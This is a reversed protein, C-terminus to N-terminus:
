NLTPAILTKNIISEITGRATLKSGEKIEIALGVSLKKEFLNPSLLTIEAKITEGPSVKDRDTFVQEGSSQYSYDHIGFQPRYGSKAPTKRGGEEPTLYTLTAILDPNDRGFYM